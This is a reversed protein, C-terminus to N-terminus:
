FPADDLDALQAEVEARTVTSKPATKGRAAIAELTPKVQKVAKVKVTKEKKVRAVPVRRELAAELAARTPADGYNIKLLYAIAEQTTMPTLLELFDIDTHGEKIMTKVRGPNCTFRPKIVGEFTSVGAHTYTKDTMQNGKHTYYRVIM